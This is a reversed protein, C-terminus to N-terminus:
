ETPLKVKFSTFEIEEGTPRKFEIERENGNEDIEVGGGGSPFVTYPTVTLENVGEEVPDLLCTGTMYKKGDIIEISSTGSHSSLTRGTEDVVNFDISGSTYEDSNLWAQYTVLLGAPSLKVDTVTLDIDGVKEQHNVTILKSDTEKEVPISFDWKKGDEGEFHLGLTFQEPIEDLPDFEAIATHYTSSIATEGFSGGYSIDKGDIKLNPGAGLYFEELPEDSEISFGVTFRTDGYFVEDITITKDGVTKSEGVANSLGLESVQKLGRDGSDSFITGIVPIQSVVSAMAPSITASGILVGCAIVAASTGYLVKRLPRKKIVTHQEVTQLIIDDLKETPVHINDIEKKFSRIEDKTM